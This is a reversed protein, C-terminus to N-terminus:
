TTQVDGSLLDEVILALGTGIEKRYEINGLFRVPRVGRLANSLFIEEASELFAPDIESEIFEYGSAIGGKELLWRRMVGAVPGETLGPTFIRQDKICFINAISTEALRNESNMIFCDDLANERAYDTVRSFLSDNISKLQSFSNIAKKDGPYIDLKLGSRVTAKHIDFPFTEILYQITEIHHDPCHYVSLRIRGSVNHTNLECLSLIEELIKEERIVFGTDM